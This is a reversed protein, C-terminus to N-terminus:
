TNLLGELLQEAKMPKGFYYGQIHEIKLERLEDYTERDEVGEVCIVIGLRSALGSITAIIIKSYEDELYQMAFSKDIKIQYIPFKRLYSLSSYGTGFDDLAVQIGMENLKDCFEIGSDLNHILATETLECVLYKPDLKQSKLEKEVCAVLGEDGVQVASCNIHVVSEKMGHRHWNGCERIASRAVWKGVELILSTYELIEVVEEISTNGYTGSTYRLLAEAGMWAGTKSDAIPQYVMSFGGFDNCVSNRLENELIYSRKLEERTSDLFFTISDKHYKSAAYMAIDANKLIQEATNGDQPYIAIGMNVSVCFKHENIIRSQKLQSLLPALAGALEEKDTEALHVLFEDGELRYIGLSKSLFQNLIGAIEKLVLNGFQHGYIDNYMKFNKINFYVIAGEAGAELFRKELDGEFGYKNKLGTLWDYYLIKYLREEYRKKETIDDLSGALLILRGQEDFMGKGRCSLWICQGENSTIRYEGKHIATEGSNLPIFSDHFSKRDEPIVYQTWTELTNSFTTGDMGLLKALQPSVTCEDKVLDVQYIYASAGEVILTNITQARKLEEVTSLLFIFLEKGVISGQKNFNDDIVHAEMLKSFYIEEHKSAFQCCELFIDATIESLESANFLTNWNIINEKM